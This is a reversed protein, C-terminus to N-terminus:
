VGASCAALTWAIRDGSERLVALRLAEKRDRVMTRMAVVVMKKFVFVRGVIRFFFAVLFESSSDTGAKSQTWLSGYSFGPLSAFVDCATAM